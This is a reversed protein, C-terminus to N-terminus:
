KKGRTYVAGLKVEVTAGAIELGAEAAELIRDVDAVVAHYEEPLVTMDVAQLVTKRTVRLGKPLERPAPVAQKAKIAALAAKEDADIRRVLAANAAAVVAHAAARQARFPERVAALQKELEACAAKEAKAVSEEIDRADHLEACILAMEDTDEPTTDELAKATELLEEINIM